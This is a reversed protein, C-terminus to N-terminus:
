AEVADTKESHAKLVYAINRMVSNIAGLIRSAPANVGGLVKAISQDRTAMKSVRELDGAALPSTGLMGGKVKVDKKTAKFYDDLAKAVGPIDDYSFALATPGKLFQEVDSHGTERVAIRTLTNKAVVIEGGKARVVKRLDAMEAVTLGRYDTVILMQMRNLRETLDSVTQVKAETTM